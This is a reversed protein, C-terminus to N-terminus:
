TTQTHPATPYPRADYLATGISDVTATRERMRTSSKRTNGHAVGCVFFAPQCPKGANMRRGDGWLQSFSVRGGCCLFGPVRRLAALALALAGAPVLPGLLFRGGTRLRERLQRERAELLTHADRSVAGQRRAGRRRPRRLHQRHAM